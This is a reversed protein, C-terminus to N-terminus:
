LCVEKKTSGNFSHGNLIRIDTRSGVHKEYGEVRAANFRIILDSEDIQKGFKNDLLAGSSAVLSATKIKSFDINTNKNSFIPFSTNDIQVEPIM